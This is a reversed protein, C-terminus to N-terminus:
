IKHGLDEYEDDLQVSKHCIPCYFYNPYPDKGCKRCIRGSGMKDKLQRCAKQNDNDPEILVDSEKDGATKNKFHRRSAKLKAKQCEPDNCYEASQKYMAPIFEKGCARCKKSKM